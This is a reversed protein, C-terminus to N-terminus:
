LSPKSPAPKKNLPVLELEQANDFDASIIVQVQRGKRDSATIMTVDLTYPYQRAHFKGLDNLDNYRYEAQASGGANPKRNKHNVLVNIYRWDEFDTPEAGHVTLTRKYTEDADYTVGDIVISQM